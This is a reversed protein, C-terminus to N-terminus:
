LLIFGLLQLICRLVDLFPRLLANQSPIQSVHQITAALAKYKCIAKLEVLHIEEMRIQIIIRAPEALKM